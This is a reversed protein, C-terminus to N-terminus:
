AGLKSRVGKLASALDLGGEVQGKPTLQDILHPLLASLGTSATGPSVGLKEAMAKLNDAGLVKTFDDASIPMNEGTGVWSTAQTGFGSKGFQQILGALGGPYSQIVGAAMEILSNKQQGSGLQGIVSGLLQDFLSM